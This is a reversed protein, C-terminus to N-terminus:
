GDNEKEQLSDKGVHPLQKLAWDLGHEKCGKRLAELISEFEPLDSKAVVKKDGAIVLVQGPVKKEPDPACYGVATIEKWAIRDKSVDTTYSIGSEDFATDLLTECFLVKRRYIRLAFVPVVFVALPVLYRIEPSVNRATLIWLVILAVIAIPGTCGLLDQARTFPSNRLRRRVRVKEIFVWTLGGVILCISVVAAPWSTTKYACWIVIFGVLILIIGIIITSVPASKKVEAL